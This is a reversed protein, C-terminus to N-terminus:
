GLELGLTVNDPNGGFNLTEQTGDKWWIKCYDALHDKHLGALLCVLALSFMIEVVATLYLM